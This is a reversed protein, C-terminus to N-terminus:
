YESAIAEFEDKTMKHQMDEIRSNIKEANTDDESGLLKKAELFNRLAMNNAGVGYYYDGMEVLALTEKFTDHTNKSADLALTLYEFAKERNRYEFYHALKMYIEFLEDYNKSEKLKDIAQALYFKSKIDEGKAEYIDALALCSYGSYNTGKTKSTSSVTLEYYRQASESDGAYDFLTAIKYSCRASFDEIYKSKKIEEYLELYKELLNVDEGQLEYLDFLQFKSIFKAQEPANKDNSIESYIEKAGEYDFAGKSILAIKLMTKFKTNSGAKKEFKLNNKLCKLAEQKNGMKEYALALVSNAQQTHEDNAILYYVNKIMNIANDFQFSDINKQAEKLIKDFDINEEDDEDDQAMAVDFMGGKQLMPKKAIKQAELGLYSYNSNVRVNSSITSPSVKKIEEIIKRITERSLRILRYKPSKALEAELADLITSYLNIKEKYTLKGILHRSFIHPLFYENSSNLIIFKEILYNLTDTSILSYAELFDYSVTCPLLALKNLETQYPSLVLLFIKNIIFERFDLDTQKNQFEKILNGYSVGSVSHYYILSDFYEPYSAYAKFLFDVNEKSLEESFSTTKERIYPESYDDAQIYDSVNLASFLRNKTILVLQLNQLKSIVQLFDIIQNQNLIDDFDKLIIVSNFEAHSFYELIKESFNEKLSKKFAINNNQIYTRFEDYLNLLIDNITTYSFCNLTFTFCNKKFKSVGAKILM